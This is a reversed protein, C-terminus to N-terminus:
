SVTHCSLRRSVPLVWSMRFVAAWCSASMWFCCGSSSKLRRVLTIGYRRELDHSVRVAAAFAMPPMTSFASFNSGLSSSSGMLDSVLPM